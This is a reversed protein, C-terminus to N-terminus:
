RNCRDEGGPAGYIWRPISEGGDYERRQCKACWYGYQELFCKRCYHYVNDSSGEYDVTVDIQFGLCGDCRIKRLDDSTQDPLSSAIKVDSIDERAIDM